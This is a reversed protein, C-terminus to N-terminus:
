GGLDGDLDQAIQEPDEGKELRSVMEDFEPGADEGLENGMRRMLRGLAAPDDEIGSLQAPDVLSEIRSEESRAVRIREIRRTVHGGGCKPCAVPKRGYDDYSLFIEFSKRCDLCRYTYTPM